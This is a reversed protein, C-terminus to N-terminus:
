IRKNSQERIMPYHGKKDTVIAKIKFDIKDSMLVEVGVRKKEMQM